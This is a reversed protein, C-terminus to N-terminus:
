PRRGGPPDTDGYLHGAHLLRPRWYPHDLRQTSVRRGSSPAHVFRGEGIYIGVHGVGGGGTRFFLLDGPRLATTPIRRAARSQATTTRPPKLGAQRHSHWVLGSCDFGQEPTRGGYRYPTGVQSLASFVVRERLPPLPEDPGKVTRPPPSACAALLLALTCVAAHAATRRWPRPSPVRGAM